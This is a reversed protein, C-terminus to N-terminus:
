PDHNHNEMVRIQTHWFYASFYAAYIGCVHAAYQALYKVLNRM